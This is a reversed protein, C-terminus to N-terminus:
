SLGLTWNFSALSFVFLDALSELLDLDGISTQRWLALNLLVIWLCYHRAREVVTVTVAICFLRSHWGSCNLLSFLDLAAIFQLLQSTISYFLALVFDRDCHNASEQLAFTLGSQHYYAVTLRAVAPEYDFYCEVFATKLCFSNLCIQLQVMFHLRLLM